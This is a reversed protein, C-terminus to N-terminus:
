GALPNLKKGPCYKKCQRPFTKNGIYFIIAHQTKNFIVRHCNCAYKGGARIQTIQDTTLSQQCHFLLFHRGARGPRGHGIGAIGGGALTIYRDLLLQRIDPRKCFAFAIGEYIFVSVIGSGSELIGGGARGKLRHHGCRLTSGKVSHDAPLHVAEADLHKIGHLRDRFAGGAHEQFTHQFGGRLPVGTLQRFVDGAAHSVIGHFAKIVTGPDKAVGAARVTAVGQIRIFRLEHAIDKIFISRTIGSGPDARIEVGAAQGSGVPLAPLHLGDEAQDGILTIGAGIDPAGDAHLITHGRNNIFLGVQLRLAHLTFGASMNLLAGHIIQEGTFGEAAVAARGHDAIGTGALGAGPMVIIGALGVLGPLATIFFGELLIIQFTGDHVKDQIINQRILLYFLCSVGDHGQLSFLQLGGRQGGHFRLALFDQLLNIIDVVGDRGADPGSRGDCLEVFQFGARFRQPDAAFGEAKRLRLQHVAVPHDEEQMLECFAVPLIGGEAPVDDFCEDVGHIDEIIM